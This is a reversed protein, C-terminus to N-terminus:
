FLVRGTRDDCLVLKVKTVIGFSLFLQSTMYKRKFLIAIDRTAVYVQNFFLSVTYILLNGETIPSTLSM